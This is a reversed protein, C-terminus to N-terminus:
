PLRDVEAEAAELQRRLDPDADHRRTSELRLKMGTLPTRLQHSANAVFERQASVTRELREAMEDFSGAVENVEASGEVDGVRASLDGEGLDHAADALQQLPRTLSGALGYAIVLGALLSAFGVLALALWTSRVKDTVQQATRTLRISGVIQEEDIIPAAAFLYNQHDTDSYRIEANPDGQM